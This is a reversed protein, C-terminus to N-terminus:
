NVLRKADPDAPDMTPDLRYDCVVWKKVIDILERRDADALKLKDALKRFTKELSRSNRFLPENKTKGGENWVVDAVIRGSKDIKGASGLFPPTVYDDGWTVAMLARWTWDRGPAPEDYNHAFVSLLVMGIPDTQTAYLARSQWTERIEQTLHSLKILEFNM